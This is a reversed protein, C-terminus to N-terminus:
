NVHVSRRLRLASQIRQIGRTVLAVMGAPYARMVVLVIVAYLVLDLEGYQQVFATLAVLLPVGVLPGIFIGLGGVMVMAIIKAMESFDGMVPSIVLIYHAFLAGALGSWFGSVVFAFVRWRVTDVGLTAARLEDDRIARMLRGIPSEVIFYMSMLAVTALAAFFYYYPLNNSVQGLMSPLFLGADGGTFGYAAILSIQVSIALAWTTLALYTGQMRLVILGLFLGVLSSVVAAFAIGIVIPVHRYEILLGTSYAGITAFAPQALSFRGTFGALLNWSCALILYYCTTIGLDFVYDNGTLTIVYVVLWLVIGVM